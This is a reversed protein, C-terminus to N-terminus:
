SLPRVTKIFNVAEDISSFEKEKSIQASTYDVLIKGYKIEIGLTNQIIYFGLDDDYKKSTGIVLNGDKIFCNYGITDLEKKLNNLDM